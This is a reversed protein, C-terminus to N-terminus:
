KESAPRLGIEAAKLLMFSYAEEFNNGIDGDLIAERIASKLIGVERGERINFHEMIFNGTIPPQWNRIKDKEEIEILKQQLREYNILYRKVKQENKSTIDAKCLLMLDNIDDGAEFLLRRVAADSIDEKTLSIPRLHLRVLKQVFKMKHDLPMRLRKFIGPVWNAGIADHGHFTWGHGKEFRKTFPKAIDHLLAAWRLWVDNSVEAVNDLVELTHYFNDKHAIGDLQEIGQLKALEPLIKELLGCDFLLKFGVSPKDAAIIKQLEGMIREKSVIEIRNKMRKISAFTEPDINFGLQCSFRIARMMRLPDDSFTMDPNLPTRIIKEELDRLGHFPDLLEGFRDENINIAMANITFDRRYQDDELSGEEISPKRSDSRYSEKRAGIFELEIDRNKLMATGFRKFVTLSPTPRLRRQVAEALAIGSGVCVVDIDDSHRSLIRDRVYGGVVYAPVNLEKAAEGVIRFLELESKTLSFIM